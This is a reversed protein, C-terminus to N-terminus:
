SILNLRQGSLGAIQSCFVASMLVRPDQGKSKHKKQKSMEVPKDHLFGGEFGVTFSNLAM